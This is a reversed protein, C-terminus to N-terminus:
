ILAAALAALIKLAVEAGEKIAKRSEIADKNVNAWEDLLTNAERVLHEMGCEKVGRLMILAVARRYNNEKLSNIVGLLENRTMKAILPYWKIIFLFAENLVEPPIREKMESLTDLFFPVSNQTKSDADTSM